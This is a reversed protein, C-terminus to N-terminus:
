VFYYYHVGAKTFFLNNLEIYGTRSRLNDVEELINGDEDTIWLKDLLSNDSWNARLSYNTSV